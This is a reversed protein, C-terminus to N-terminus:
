SRGFAILAETLQEGTHGSADWPDLFTNISEVRYPSFIIVLLGIIFVSATPLLIHFPKNM